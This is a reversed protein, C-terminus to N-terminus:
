YVFERGSAARNGMLVQWSIRNESGYKKIVEEAQNKTLYGAHVLMVLARRWGHAIVRNPIKIREGSANVSDKRELLSWEPVIPAKLSGVAMKYLKQLGGYRGTAIDREWPAAQKIESVQLTPLTLHYDVKLRPSLREVVTKFTARDMIKGLQRDIDTVEDVFREDQSEQAIWDNTVQRTMEVKQEYADVKQYETDQVGLNRRNNHTTSLM